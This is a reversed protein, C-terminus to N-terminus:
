AEAIGRISTYASMLLLAAPNRLSAVHTAPGSGMSRGFVLINKEEVGLVMNVYDYVYLADDLINEENSDFVSDNYAEYSGIQEIEAKDQESEYESELSETEFIMANSEDNDSSM